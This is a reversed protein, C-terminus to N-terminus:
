SVCSFRASVCAVAVLGKREGIFGMGENTTAKISIRDVSLGTLDSLRDRMKKRYLSIKPAEAVVTIDVNSLSGGAESLLGIAHRVFYGSDKGAWKQDSAPFHEGIDGQGATGLIADTLAHLAVDGDSHGGLSADHEIKVGCLKMWDGPVFAHVDYGFGCRVDGAGSMEMLSFRKRARSLDENTTIKLNDQDGTVAFIPIGAWEAVAADDVFDVIGCEAARRHADLISEYDFGQPTQALRLDERSVTEVVLDHVDVRKMADVAPTSAFVAPYDSLCAIVREITEVTIFPRVGDHILVCDPPDDAIAELGALVSAQRTAGGIVPAAIKTLGKVSDEFEVDFGPRVVAIVKELSPAESVKKLTHGLLTKGGIYRYQKPVDGVDCQLRSGCGAAVVVVFVRGV